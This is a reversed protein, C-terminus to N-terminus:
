RFTSQAQATPAHVMDAVSLNVQFYVANLLMLVMDDTIAGRALFDQIKGGTQRAVWDNIPTEPEPRQFAKPYAGYHRRLSRSFRRTTAM